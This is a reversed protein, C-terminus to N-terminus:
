AITQMVKPAMRKQINLQSVTEHTRQSSGPGELFPRGETQSLFSGLFPQAPFSLGSWPRDQPSM